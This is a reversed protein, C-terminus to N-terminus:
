QVTVYVKKVEVVEEIRVRYMIDNPYDSEGSGYHSEYSDWDLAYIDGSSVETFYSTASAMDKYLTDYDVITEIHEYGASGEWAMERPNSVKVRNEDIRTFEM